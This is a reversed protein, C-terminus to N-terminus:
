LMTLQRNDPHGQQQQQPQQQQITVEVTDYSTNQRDVHRNAQLMGSAESVIPMQLMVEQSHQARLHADEVAAARQLHLSTEAALRSLDRLPPRVDSEAIALVRPRNDTTAHASPRDSVSHSERDIDRHLHHASLHLAAPPVHYRLPSAGLNSFNRIATRIDPDSISGTFPRVNSITEAISQPISTKQPDTMGSTHISASSSQATQWVSTEPHSGSVENANSAATISLLAERMEKSYNVSDLDKTNPLSQIEASDRQPPPPSKSTASTATELNDQDQNQMGASISMLAEQVEREEASKPQDTATATTVTASATVEVSSTVAATTAGRGGNQYSTKSPGLPKKPIPFNDFEQVTQCAYEVDMHHESKM